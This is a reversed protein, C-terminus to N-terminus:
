GTSNSINTEEDALVWKAKPNYEINDGKSFAKHMTSGVHKIELVVFKETIRLAKVTVDFNINFGYPGRVHSDCSLDYSEGVHIEVKKQGNKHDWLLVIYTNVWNHIINKITLKM